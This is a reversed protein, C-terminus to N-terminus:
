KSRVEQTIDEHITKNVIAVLLQSFVSVLLTTANVFPSKLVIDNKNKANNIM